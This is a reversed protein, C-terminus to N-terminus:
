RASGDFPGACRSLTYWPAHLFGNHLAICLGDGTQVQQYLKESVEADGSYANPGWASLTVYYTTSKGSVAHMGHVVSQYRSAVSRDPLTDAVRAAGSSYFVGCFILALTSGLRAPSKWAFRLLPALYLVFVLLGL